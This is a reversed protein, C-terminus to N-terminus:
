IEEDEDEDEDDENEARGASNIFYWLQPPNIEKSNHPVHELSVQREGPRLTWGKHSDSAPDIITYRKDAPKGDDKTEIIWKTGKVGKEGNGIVRNDKPLTPLGNTELTFQKGKGDVDNVSFYARLNVRIIPQILPFTGSVGVLANDAPNVVQIAYIGSKLSM